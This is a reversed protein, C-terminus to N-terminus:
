LEEALDLCSENLIIAALQAVLSGLVGVQRTRLM